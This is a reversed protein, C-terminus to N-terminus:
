SGSLSYASSPSNNGLSNIGMMPQGVIGTVNSLVSSHGNVLVNSNGHNLVHGHIASGSMFGSGRIDSGNNGIVGGSGGGGNSGPTYSTATAAVAAAAAATAMRQHQPLQSSHFASSTAPVNPSHSSSSFFNGSGGFSEIGRSSTGLAFNGTSKHKSPTILGATAADGQLLFHQQQQQHQHQLQIQQFLSSTSALSPHIFGSSAIFPAVIPHDPSATSGSKEGIYYSPLDSRSIAITPISGSLHSSTATPPDLESPTANTAAVPSGHTM